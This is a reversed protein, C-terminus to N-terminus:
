HVLNKEIKRKFFDIIIDEYKFIIKYDRFKCTFSAYYFHPNDIIVEDTTLSLLIKIYNKTKDTLYNLKYNSNNIPIQELNSDFHLVKDLLNIYFLSRYKYECRM